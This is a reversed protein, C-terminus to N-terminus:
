HRYSDVKIQDVIEDPTLRADIIAANQPEELDRFQSEILSSPMYHGKRQAMREEIVSRDAQLYVFRVEASASLRQRYAQKLASCALVINENSLIASLTDLWPSRDNDDLPIGSRMKEINAAPHHDDADVFQYGLRDALLKGVTTKGCGTVGMIVFNM